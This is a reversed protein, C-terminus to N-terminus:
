DQKKGKCNTIVQIITCDIIDYYISFSYDNEQSLFLINTEKHEM